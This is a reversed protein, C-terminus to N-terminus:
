REPGERQREAEQVCGKARAVEDWTFSQLSLNDGIEVLEISEPNQLAVM